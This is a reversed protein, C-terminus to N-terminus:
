NKKKKKKNKGNESIRQPSKLNKMVTEQLVQAEDCKSDKNLKFSVIM